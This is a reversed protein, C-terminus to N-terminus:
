GGYVDFDFYKKNIEQYKGNARIAKIAASFMDRLDTDEKRVGVGAGPGHIELVPTVMGVLKCCAGAETKLWESLVVSDDNAADLRGNALDLKYEDATPYTKLESETLKKEVYDAHMTSVQAGVTKGALDEPTVGKIDTDKPAVIAPPTNYYKESFDIVKKREPTISMSAIIGDFKGALLAPIMGDWDQAVIECEVKMEECLALAIDVDFGKLKGDTDVYNFPPYAGETGIVVKKWEKASAGGLSLALLAAATVLTKAFKM